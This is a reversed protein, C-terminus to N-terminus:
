FADAPMAMVITQCKEYLAMEDPSDGLGKQVSKTVTEPPIGLAVGTALAVLLFGAGMALLKTSLTPKTRM